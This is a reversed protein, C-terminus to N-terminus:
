GTAGALYADLLGAAHDESGPILHGHKDLTISV